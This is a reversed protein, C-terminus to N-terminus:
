HVTYYIGKELVTQKVGYENSSKEPPNSSFDFTLVMRKRLLPVYSFHYEILSDQYNPLHKDMYAQSVMIRGLVHIVAIRNRKMFDTLVTDAISSREIARSESFANHYGKGILYSTMERYDQLNKIKERNGPAPIAALSTFIAILCIPKVYAM